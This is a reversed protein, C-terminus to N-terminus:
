CVHGHPVGSRQGFVPRREMEVQRGGVVRGSGLRLTEVRPFLGGLVGAALLLLGM